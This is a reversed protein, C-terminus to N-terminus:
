KSERTATDVKKLLDLETGSMHGASVVVGEIIGAMFTPWKHSVKISVVESAMPDASGTEFCRLPHESNILSAKFSLHERECATNDNIEATEALKVPLDALDELNWDDLQYFTVVREFPTGSYSIEEQRLAGVLNWIQAISIQDTIERSALMLRGSSAESYGPVEQILFQSAIELHSFKQIAARSCNQLRAKILSMDIQSIATIETKWPSLNEFIERLTIGDELEFCENLQGLFQGRETVAVTKGPLDLNHRDIRSPIRVRLIGDRCFIASPM